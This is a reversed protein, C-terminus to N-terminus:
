TSLLVWSSDWVIFTRLFSQVCIMSDQRPFPPTFFYLVFSFLACHNAKKSDSPGSRERSEAIQETFCAKVHLLHSRSLSLSLLHHSLLSSLILSALYLFFFIQFNSQSSKKFEIKSLFCNTCSMLQFWEVTSFFIVMHPSAKTKLAQRLRIFNVCMIKVNSRRFM